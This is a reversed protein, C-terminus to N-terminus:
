SRSRQIISYSGLEQPLDLLDKIRGRVHMTTHCCVTNVYNGLVPEQPHDSAFPLYM